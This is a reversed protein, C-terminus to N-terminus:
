RSAVPTFTSFDVLTGLMQMYAILADMETLEAQGDFNSVVAGPYREVLADWDGDPDAQVRLDAQAYAARREHYIDSLTQRPNETRLLPRTNKHRVRSWLLDLDADLWVAVGTETIARRNRPQLYAGGGTSLVVPEGGLLREIVQSEKDRFFPEGDREFIEAISMNSAAVIEADSDLFPVGLRAAVASGIATKGAGMMGVMAVTKGLRFQM